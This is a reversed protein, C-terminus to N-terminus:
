APVEDGAVPCPCSGCHGDCAQPVRTPDILLGRSGRNLSLAIANVTFDRTRLHDYIPAATMQPKGGAKAYKERASMAIGVAVGTPFRFEIAKRLDDADIQVAGAQLLAKTLKSPNGEVVFDLDRVAFGGLMDRVAGGSLFINIGSDQAVSVVQALAHNQPGTLHSELMFM